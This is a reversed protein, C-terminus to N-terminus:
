NQLESDEETSLKSLHGENVVDPDIEVTEELTNLPVTTTESDMVVVVAEVPTAETTAPEGNLPEEEWTALTGELMALLDREEVAQGSAVRRQVERMIADLSVTTQAALEANRQRVAEVVGQQLQADTSSLFSDQAMEEAFNQNNKRRYVWLAGHTESQRLIIDETKVMEMLAMFTVVMVLPRTDRGLVEEFLGRGNRHLYNVIHQQRDEITVDDLEITHTPKNRTQDQLSKKFAKFLQWIGADALTEEDSRSREMRGRYFAGVQEGELSQLHSAVEKFRQYELMQQILKERDQDFELMEVDSQQDKPLLERVKLAMLRAAMVLFEGAESLDAMAVKSIWAAYQDAIQALSIDKPDLENKQVLYLLLDMPGDFPAIHVEYSQAVEAEM